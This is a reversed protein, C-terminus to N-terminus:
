PTMEAATAYRQAKPPQAVGMLFGAIAFSGVIVIFAPRYSGLIDFVLNIVIPGFAGFGFGILYALSRVLGLSLRGFYNAWLVEQVIIVGSIGLGYLAIALWLFFPQGAFILFFVAAGQILFPVVRVSRRHAHEALFGMFPLAVAGIIVRFTMVTALMAEGYGLDQIYPALSLNIAQFAMRNVAFGLSLLWFTSTM